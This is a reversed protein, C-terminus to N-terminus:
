RVIRILTEFDNETIITQEEGNYTATDLNLFEIGCIEERLSLNLVLTDTEM